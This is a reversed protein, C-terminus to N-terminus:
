LAVNMERQIMVRLQEVTLFHPNTGSNYAYGPEVAPCGQRECYQDVSYKAAMPLIAFYRGLDVTNISDSATIMEEHLKEGPRIGVVPHACDPGIAQALNETPRNTILVLPESSPGGESILLWLSQTSGPLRVHVWDLTVKVITTRGAHTFATQFRHARPASAVLDKLKELEWRDLRPNYVEVWRDSTARIIFELGVRDAYRFLKQDDLGADGVFRLKTEPFLARTTRIARYLERNQSVFDATVYSFWNAYTIAPEPLNVVTATLAPYGSTLRKEGRPGPPTSKMVTSVGELEETYPKEFNVGDLAVM